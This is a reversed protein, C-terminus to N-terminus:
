TRARLWVEASLHLYSPVFIVGYGLVAITSGVPGFVNFGHTAALRSAEYLGGVTLAALAVVTAVVWWWKSVARAASRGRFLFTLVLRWGVVLGSITTVGTFADVVHEASISGTAAPAIAGLMMLFGLWTPYALMLAELGLLVKSFVEFRM